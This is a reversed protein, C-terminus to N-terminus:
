EHRDETAYFQTAISHYWKQHILHILELFSLHKRPNCNMYIVNLHPHQEWLTVNSSSIRHASTIKLEPFPTQMIQVEIALYNPDWCTTLFLDYQDGRQRHHAIRITWICWRSVTLHSIPNQYIAIIPRIFLFGITLLTKRMQGSNLRKKVAYKWMKFWLIM